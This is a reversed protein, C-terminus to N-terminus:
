SVLISLPNASDYSLAFRRPAISLGGYMVAIELQAVRALVPWEFRGQADVAVIHSLAFNNIPPAPILTAQPLQTYGVYDARSTGHEIALFGSGPLPVLGNAFLVADGPLAERSVTGAAALGGLDSSCM